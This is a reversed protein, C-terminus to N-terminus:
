PTTPIEDFRRIIWHGNQFVLDYDWSRTRDADNPVTSILAGTASGDRIEITPNSGVPMNVRMSVRNGQGRNAASIVLKRTYPGAGALVDVVVAFLAVGLNAAFTNTGAANFEATQIYTTLGGISGLQANIASLGELVLIRWERDTIDVRFVSDEPVLFSLALPAMKCRISSLSM